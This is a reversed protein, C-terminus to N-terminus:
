RKMTSMPSMDRARSMTDPVCPFFAEAIRTKSTGAPTRLKRSQARTPQDDASRDSAAVRDSRLALVHRRRPLPDRLAIPLQRTCSRNGTTAAPVVAGHDFWRALVIGTKRNATLRCMPPPRLARRPGDHLGRPRTRSHEISRQGQLDGLDAGAPRRATVKELLGPLLPVTGHSPPLKPALWGVGAHHPTSTRVTSSPEM